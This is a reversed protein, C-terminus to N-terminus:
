SAESPQIQGILRGGTVPRLGTVVVVPPLGKPQPKVRALVRDAEARFPDKTRPLLTHYAPVHDDAEFHFLARADYIAKALLELALSQRLQTNFSRTEAATM